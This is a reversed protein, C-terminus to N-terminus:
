EPSEMMLDFALLSGKGVLSIGPYICLSQKRRWKQKVSGKAVSAYSDEAHSTLFEHPSSFIENGNQQRNFLSVISSHYFIFLQICNHSHGSM